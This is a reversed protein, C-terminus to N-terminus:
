MYPSWSLNRGRQAQRNPQYGLQQVAAMVKEKTALSIEGKNNIARSVTQKSVGAVKAVDAITVRQKM